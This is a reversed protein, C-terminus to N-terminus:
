DQYGSSSILKQYVSPFDGLGVLKILEPIYEQDQDMQIKHEISIYIRKPDNLFKILRFLKLISEAKNRSIYAADFLTWVEIMAKLM